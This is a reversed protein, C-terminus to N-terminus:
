GAGGILFAGALIEVQRHTNAASVITEAGAHLIRVDANM